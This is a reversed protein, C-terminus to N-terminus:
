RMTPLQQVLEALDKPFSFTKVVDPDVLMKILEQLMSKASGQEGHVMLVAKPLGPIFLSIIYCKLILRKSQKVNLLKMFQDFIDPPYDGSNNPYDQAQQHEFRRFIIENKKVKWGEPTIEIFEYEDNTLDYYWRLKLGLNDDPAPAFRLSLNRTQGDFAADSILNYVVEDLLTDRVAVHYEKKVIKRLWHKFRTGKIPLIELHKNITVAAHAVRYEDNFIEQCNEKAIQLIADVQGGGEGVESRRIEEETYVHKLWNFGIVSLWIDNKTELDIEHDLEKDYLAHRRQSTRRTYLSVTCKEM